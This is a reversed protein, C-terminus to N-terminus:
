TAIILFRFKCNDGHHQAYNRRDFIRNCYPCEKRTKSISKATSISAIHKLQKAKEPGYLIEFSRDRTEGLPLPGIFDLCKNGHFRSIASGQMQKFCHPCQKKKKNKAATSRNAKAQASDIRGTSTERIKEIAGITHKYERKKQKQEESLVYGTPGDGGDTLNRLCGTGLDIRGFEVIWFVEWMFADDESLNEKIFRINSKNSPIPVYHKGSTARNKKGKGIYYPSGAPGNKSDKERLYM